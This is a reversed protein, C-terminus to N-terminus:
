PNAVADIAHLLSTAPDETDQAIEWIMVGPFGNDIAYRAKNTITQVGNYYINAVRDMDPADSHLAVIDRYTIGAGGRDDFDRGYFPVGLVLKNKPWGRYNTWYALGTSSASSGSGIAQEFSSHPGPASWPGSFDYSMVHVHDVLPHVDEYHRGFWDGPYVDLSIKPGDLAARLDQLLSVLSAKESPVPMNANDKTWHEWDIDVGDLCHTELYQGVTEVFVRRTDDNAALATLGESSGGGGVSVYVEVGHAHATSVLTGVQTLRSTDLSGDARPIAFAYIVRTLMDWRIQSIPTVDHRYAPYFGIVHHAFTKGEFTGACSPEVEPDVVPSCGFYALLLVISFAQARFQM